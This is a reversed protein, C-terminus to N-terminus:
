IMMVSALVIVLKVLNKFDSSTFTAVTDSTPDEGYIMERQLAVELEYSEKEDVDNADYFDIHLRRGSGALKMGVEGSVSITEGVDFNFLNTPVRTSIVVGNEEPVYERATISPFSVLGEEVIGLTTTGQTLTMSVLLDVEVDSSISKVCVFLESSPALADTNCTFDQMGGCKCSQVYDTVNTSRTESDITGKGLPNDNLIFDVSLDFDINIVRKDESIVLKPRPSSSPIVLQVVQCLEINNGTANWINSSTIKTKNFEYALGLLDTRKDIATTTDVLTIDIGTISSVCDSALLETQYARNNPITYNAV